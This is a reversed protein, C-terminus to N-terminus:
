RKYFGERYAEMDRLMKRLRVLEVRKKKIAKKEEVMRARLAYIEQKLREVNRKTAEEDIM